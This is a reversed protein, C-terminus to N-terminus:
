FAVGEMAKNLEEDTAQYPDKMASSGGSRDPSGGSVGAAEEAARVKEADRESMKKHFQDINKGRYENWIVDMQFPLGKNFMEQWNKMLEARHDLADPHLQFFLSQDRAAEALVTARNIAPNVHPAILDRVADPEPQPVPQNQTVFSRLSDTVQDSVALKIADLDVAGRAATTAADTIAKQQAATQQAAIEEPTPDAM